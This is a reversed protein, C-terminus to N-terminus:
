KPVGLKDMIANIVQMTAFPSYKATVELIEEKSLRKLELLEPRLRLFDVTSLQELQTESIIYHKM